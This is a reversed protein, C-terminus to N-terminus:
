LGPGNQFWLVCSVGFSSSLDTGGSVTLEAAQERQLGFPKFGKQDIASEGGAAPPHRDNQGFRNGSASEKPSRMRRAGTRRKKAGVGFSKSNVM